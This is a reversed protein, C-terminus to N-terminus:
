GFLPFTYEFQIDSDVQGASFATVTHHVLVVTSLTTHAGVPLQQLIHPVLLPVMCARPVPIHAHFAVGQAAIVLVM